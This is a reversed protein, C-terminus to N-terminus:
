LSPELYANNFKNLFAPPLVGSDDDYMCQKNDKEVGRETDGEGVSLGAGEGGVEVPGVEGGYECGCSGVVVAGFGCGVILM